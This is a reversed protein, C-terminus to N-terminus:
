AASLIRLGENLINKAANFDRDHAAGCEPCTWERVSLDKTGPWQAGCVCCTQSSPYFTDVKQVVRGAWKTKYELQQIFEFWSADSIVRALKKNQVMGRINLNEVCIIQNENVLRRSIKHRYDRRQNAIQEHVRAVKIRQKQYNNSGKKKRSLRRQERALKKQLKHFTRPNEYIVGDSTTAFAKLGVDIGIAKDTVPLPELEVECALSVFYKGTPTQTVTANIIRGEVPRHIVAPIDGIKPLRVARDCVQVNREGSNDIHFSKSNDYRSKFKPFGIQGKGRFFNKYAYDLDQIAGRLALLSVDSLWMTEPCKKLQTLDKTMDFRTMHKGEAKYLDIQKGLYHNYVWRASGFTKALFAKQEPTPYLRYKFSKHQLAM